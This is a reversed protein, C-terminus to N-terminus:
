VDLFYLLTNLLTSHLWFIKWTMEYLEDPLLARPFPDRNTARTSKYADVLPLFPSTKM